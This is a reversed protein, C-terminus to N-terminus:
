DEARQRTAAVERHFRVPVTTASDGASDEFYAPLTGDSSIYAWSRYGRPSHDTRVLVIATRVEAVNAAYPSEDRYEDLVGEDHDATAALCSKYSSQFLHDAIDNTGCHYYVTVEIDWEYEINSAM